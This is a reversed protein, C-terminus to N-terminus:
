NDKQKHWNCLKEIVPNNNERGPLFNSMQIYKTGVPLQLKILMIEWENANCSKPSSLRTTYKQLKIM